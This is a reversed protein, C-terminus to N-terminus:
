LFGRVALGLPCPGMDTGTSSVPRQEWAFLQDFSDWSDLPVPVDLLAEISAPTRAFAGAGALGADTLTQRLASPVPVGPRRAVLGAFVAVDARSALAAPKPPADRLILEPFPM